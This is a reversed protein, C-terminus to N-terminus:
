PLLLRRRCVIVAFTSLSLPLHSRCALNPPPSCLPHVLAPPLLCHLCPTAIVAKAASSPPPPHNRCCVVAVAVASLLLSLHCLRHVVVAHLIPCWVMLPFSSLMLCDVIADSLLSILGSPLCHSFIFFDLKPLFVKKLSVTQRTPNKAGAFFAM